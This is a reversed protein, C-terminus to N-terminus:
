ISKNYCKRCLPTYESADFLIRETNDSTRHTFIAPTGDKCITCIATLKQFSDAQPLLNLITNFGKTKFDGDLAAIHIIKQKKNVMYSSWECIDPFFQGENILLAKNNDISSSTTPNHHDFIDSLKSVYLCDVTQNDHTSMVNADNKIESYNIIIPNCESLKYKKYLALLKTSKGSWMCGLILELYGNKYM